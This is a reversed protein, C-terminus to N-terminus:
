HKIIISPGVFHLRPPRTTLANTKRHSTPPELRPATERLDRFTKPGPFGYCFDWVKLKCLQEKSMNKIRVFNGKMYLKKGIYKKTKLICVILFPKGPGFLKRPKRSVPGQDSDDHQKRLCSVENWTTERWGPTYIPVPSWIAPPYGQSPSADWGPPLLLIGLRKM